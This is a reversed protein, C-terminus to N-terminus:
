LISWTNSHSKDEVLLHLCLLTPLVVLRFIVIRELRRWYGTRSFKLTIGEIKWLSTEQEKTPRVNFHVTDVRILLM